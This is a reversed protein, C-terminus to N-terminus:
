EGKLKPNPRLVRARHAEWTEPHDRKIADVDLKEVTVARTYEAALEPEAVAFRAPAFTGNRKWTAIPTGDATKAETAEGILDRLTNGALAKRSDAEKAAEAAAHYERVADLASADLEVLLGGEGAWRGNLAETCSSSGDVPPATDGVVHKAWWAREVSVLDAILRDDREIRRYLPDRGDILVAVHAHSRGTVALTHQVQLEAVDPVQGDEWLDVQRWNTTKIEAVGGDATLRDPNVQLEPWVRSRLLGCRRFEMGDLHESLWDAVVAELRNGWEMASSPTEDPLGITKDVWLSYPDNYPNLGLVTAADSGGLGKRREALWADRPADARLILRADPTRWLGLDTADLVRADATM